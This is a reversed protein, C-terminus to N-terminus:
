DMASDVMQKERNSYIFLNPTILVPIMHSFLTHSGICHTRSHYIRLLMHCGKKKYLYTIDHAKFLVGLIM